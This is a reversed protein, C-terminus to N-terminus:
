SGSSCRALSCAPADCDTAPCGCKNKPSFFSLGFDKGYSIWRLQSSSRVNQASTTEKAMSFRIIIHNLRSHKCHHGSVLRIYAAGVLSSDVNLLMRAVRMVQRQSLCNDTRDPSEVAREQVAM